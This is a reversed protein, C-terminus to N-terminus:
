LMSLIDTQCKTTGVIQFEVVQNEVNHRKTIQCEAVQVEANYRLVELQV